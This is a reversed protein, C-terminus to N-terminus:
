RPLAPYLERSLAKVDVKWDDGVRVLPLEFKEEYSSPNMADRTVQMTVSATNADEPRSAVIRYTFIYYKGAKNVSRDWQARMQEPSENGLYSMKTLTDVDGRQLATMFRGGISSLSERSFALLALVLLAAALCAITIISARGSQKM